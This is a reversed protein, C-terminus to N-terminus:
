EIVLKQPKVKEPLNRILYVTLIGNELQVSNVIVYSGIQYSLNFSRSAIGRHIYEGSQEDGKSSSVRLKNGDVEVQLQDKNFGAVALEIQFTESSTKVINYPPYGNTTVANDFKFFEEFISLPNYGYPNNTTIRRTNTMHKEKKLLFIHPVRLPM